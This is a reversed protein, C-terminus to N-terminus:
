KTIIKLGYSLDIHAFNTKNDYTKVKKVNNIIIYFFYLLNRFPIFSDHNTNIEIHYYEKNILSFLDVTKVRENVNNVNIENRLYEITDIKIDLLRKMFEKLLKENSCFITKFVRDYKATYFKKEMYLKRSELVYFFSLM